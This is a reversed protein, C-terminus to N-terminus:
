KIAYGSHRDLRVSGTVFWMPRLDVRFGDCRFDVFGSGSEGNGLSSQLAPCLESRTPRRRMRSRRAGRTPPGCLLLSSWGPFTPGYEDLRNLDFSRTCTTLMISRASSIPEIALSVSVQQKAFRADEEDQNEPETLILEPVSLTIRPDM